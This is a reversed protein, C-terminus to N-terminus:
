NQTGMEWSDIHLMNWGAPRNHPKHGVAAMLRGVFHDLHHNLATTDMKSCEFGVGPLPAPRTNAGTLTRGFRYIM